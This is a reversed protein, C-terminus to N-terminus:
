SFSSKDSSGVLAIRDPRFLSRLRDSSLMTAM